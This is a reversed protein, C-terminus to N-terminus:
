DGPVQFSTRLEVPYNTSVLRVTAIYEGASRASWVSGYRLSEGALLVERGLAQTFMMDDSWRWLLRGEADAVEMDYRQGTNFELAVVETTTNTLHLEIHASDGQIGVNLTAGLEPPAGAGMDVERDQLGPTCAALLATMLWGATRV